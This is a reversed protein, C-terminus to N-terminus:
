SDRIEGLASILTKVCGGLSWGKIFSALFLRGGKLPVM